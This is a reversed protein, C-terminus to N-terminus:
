NGNRYWSMKYTLNISEMLSAFRYLDTETIFRSDSTVIFAGKDGVDEFINDKEDIEQLRRRRELCKQRVYELEKEYFTVNRNKM